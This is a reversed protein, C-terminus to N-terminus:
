IKKTRKNQNDKLSQSAVADIRDEKNQLWCGKDSWGEMRWGKDIEM